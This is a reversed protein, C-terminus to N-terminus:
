CSFRLALALHGSHRELVLSYSEWYNLVYAEVLASRRIITKYDNAKLEPLSFAQACPRYLELAERLAQDCTEIRRTGALMWEDYLAMLSLRAAPQALAPPAYHVIFAQQMSVCSYATQLGQYILGYWHTVYYGYYRTEEPFGRHSWPLRM